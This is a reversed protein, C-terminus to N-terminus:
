VYFDSGVIKLPFAVETGYFEEVMLYLPSQILHIAKQCQKPNRPTPIHTYLHTQTLTYAYKPYTLPSVYKPTRTRKKKVWLFPTYTDGSRSSLPTGKNVQLRDVEM